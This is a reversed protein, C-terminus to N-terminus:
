WERPETMIVVVGGQVRVGCLHQHTAQGRDVWVGTHSKVEYPGGEGNIGKRKITRLDKLVDAVTRPERGDPDIALQDYMGRYSGMYGPSSKMGMYEVQIDANRRQKALVDILGVLTTVEVPETSAPLHLKAPSVLYTLREVEALLHEHSGEIMAPTARGCEIQAAVWRHHNIDFAPKQETDMAEMHASRAADTAAALDLLALIRRYRAYKEKGCTECYSEVYGWDSRGRRPQGPALDVHCYFAGAPIAHLNQCTRAQGAKERTIKVAGM